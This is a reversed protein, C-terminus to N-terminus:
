KAFEGYAFVWNEACDEVYSYRHDTIKRSNVLENNEYMDVVFEGANDKSAFIVAERNMEPNSYEDTVKYNEMDAKVITFSGDLNDIWKITDGEKFGSAELIEDSLEIFHDGTKEDHKVDLTWNNKM